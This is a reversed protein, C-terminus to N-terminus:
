LSVSEGFLEARYFHVTLVLFLFSAGAVILGFVSMFLSPDYGVQGFEYAPHATLDSMGFIAFGVFLFFIGFIVNVVAVRQPKM